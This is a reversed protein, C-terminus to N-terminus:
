DRLFPDCVSTWFNVQVVGNSLDVEVVEVLLTEIIFVM